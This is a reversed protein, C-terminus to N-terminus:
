MEAMTLTLARESRMGKQRRIFDAKGLRRFKLPSRAWGPRSRKQNTGMPMDAGRRVTKVTKPKYGNAHGRREEHREYPKANLHKEREIRM